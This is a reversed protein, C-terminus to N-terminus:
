ATINEISILKNSIAFITLGSQSKIGTKNIINKRHTIVTHISINLKNAIEKNSLGHTLQILVDKERDTLQESRVLEDSINNSGSLKLIANEMTEIKDTIQIVMDFLDLITKDFFSYILGICKIEPNCKRFSVYGNRDMFISAPNIVLIEIKQGTLTTQLESLNDMRSIRFIPKMKHLINTLGEYVISSPELVGIHIIRELM